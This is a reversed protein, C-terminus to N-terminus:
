GHDGVKEDSATGDSERTARAQALLQRGEDDIADAAQEADIEADGGLLLAGDVRLDQLWVTGKDDVSFAGATFLEGTMKHKFTAGM